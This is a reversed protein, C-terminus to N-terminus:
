CEREFWSSRFHSLEMRNQLKRHKLWWFVTDSNDAKNGVSIIGCYGGPHGLATGWQGQGPCHTFVSCDSERVEEGLDQLGFIFRLLVSQYLSTHFVVAWPSDAHSVAHGGIKGPHQQNNWSLGLVMFAFGRLYFWKWGGSFIRTFSFFGFIDGQM